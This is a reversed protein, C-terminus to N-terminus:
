KSEAAIQNGQQLHFLLCVDPGCAHHTKVERKKGKRERERETDNGGPGM